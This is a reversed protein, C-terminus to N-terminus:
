RHVSAVHDIVLAENFTDAGCGDCIFMPIDAWKTEHYGKEKPDIKIESILQFPSVVDGGLAVLEAATLLEDNEAM